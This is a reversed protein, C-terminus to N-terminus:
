QAPYRPSSLMNLICLLDLFPAVTASWFYQERAIGYYLGVPISIDLVLRLCNNFRRAVLCAKSDEDTLDTQSEPKAITSPDPLDSIM